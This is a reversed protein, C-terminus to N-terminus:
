SSLGNRATKLGFLNKLLDATNPLLKMPRPAMFNVIKEHVNYRIKRSKSARRDVAKRKKTQFKKLAYFAAESSAPDITEFFEKLLQQYFETDELLEPDGELKTEEQNPHAAEGPVTGFVAVTSRIQQMQKIMRSPDRMHSAVQESINQNFAHLKGKIAAAGTTVQSRRQWKDVAKDRFSSIRKQLDSIRQWEDTDESDSKNIRNSNADVQQDISPNKELLAEQLELLSDLTKKSSTILDAYATSVNGDTSCFSLKVPELPLRNSSAFAKQLLFRFELTKDWLAKQNKVAQGKVADEDTNRKLNKLINQEESRLDMYEKELEEMEANIHGDDPEGGSETERDNGEEDEETNGEDGEGTIEEDYEESDREDEEDTINDELEDDEYEYDKGEGEVRHNERDSIDESDSSSLRAKKSRKVSPRM